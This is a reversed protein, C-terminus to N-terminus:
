AHAKNGREIPRIESARGTRTMRSLAPDVALGAIDATGGSAVVLPKPTLIM